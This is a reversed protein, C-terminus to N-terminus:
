RRMQLNDILTGHVINWSAALSMEFNHDNRITELVDTQDIPVPLHIVQEVKFQLIPNVSEGNLRFGDFLPFLRSVFHILAWGTETTHGLFLRSM